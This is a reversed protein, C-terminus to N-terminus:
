NETKKKRKARSNSDTHALFHLESEALSLLKVSVLSILSFLSGSSRLSLITGRPLFIVLLYYLQTPERRRRRKKRREKSSTSCFEGREVGEIKRPLAQWLKEKERLM